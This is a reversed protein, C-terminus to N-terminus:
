RRKVAVLQDKEKIVNLFSHKMQCNWTCGRMNVEKKRRDDIKQFYSTIYSNDFDIQQLYLKHYNAASCHFLLAVDLNYKLKHM